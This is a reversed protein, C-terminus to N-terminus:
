IITLMMVKARTKPLKNNFVNFIQQNEGIM